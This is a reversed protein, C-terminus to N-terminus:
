IDSPGFSCSNVLSCVGMGDRYPVGSRVFCSLARPVTRVDSICMRIGVGQGWGVSHGRAGDAEHCSWVFGEINHLGSEVGEGLRVSLRHLVYTVIYM